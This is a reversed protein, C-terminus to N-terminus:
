EVTRGDIGGHANLYTFYADIGSQVPKGGSAAPGSLDTLSLVTITKATAGRGPKLGGGPPNTPAPPPAGGGPGPGPAALPGGPRAHPAAPAAACGAALATAAVLPRAVLPPRLSRM